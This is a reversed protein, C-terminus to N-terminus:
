RSRASGLRPYPRIAMYPNPPPLDLDAPDIEIRADLAIVGDADALLPNVDLARLAPFDEVMHGVAVLAAHLAAADAAPRGGFGALLRGARTRAVLEGALGADLPPLAVATDQLLEVALGGAGFLIAPGFVADHGVGLIVEQAFPRRIMPQVTFGEGDPMAAAAVEAAEATALDLMVGGVESKHTM